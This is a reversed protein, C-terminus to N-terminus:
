LNYNRKGFIDTGIRILTAGEKLAYVYDASMGMSLQNFDKTLEKQYKELLDRLKAFIAQSKHVEDNDFFPAMTMLGRLKVNDLEKAVLIVNDLEEILFGHKSKEEAVNVQILVESILNRQKSVTDIRRLIKLDHVSHILDVLGVIDRVKNRQLTGIFHWKFDHKQKIDEPLNAFTAQKELLEQVRNEAFIKQGLENAILLDELPFNKTVCVLQPELYGPKQNHKIGKNISKLNEEIEKKRDFYM